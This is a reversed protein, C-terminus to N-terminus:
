SRGPSHNRRARRLSRLSPRPDGGNRPQSAKIVERYTDIESRVFRAMEEPTKGVSLTFGLNAVRERLEPRQMVRRADAHFKDIVAKPVGRPATRVRDLRCDGLGPPDAPKGWRRFIRLSCRDSSRRCRRSAEAPRDHAEGIRRKHRGANGRGHRGFRADPGNGPFAGAAHRRRACSSCSPVWTSRVAPETSAYSAKDPNKKAYEILDKLTKIPGDRPIRLVLLGSM